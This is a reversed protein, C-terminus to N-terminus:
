FSEVCIYEPCGSDAPVHYPIAIDEHNFMVRCTAGHAEKLIELTEILEEITM